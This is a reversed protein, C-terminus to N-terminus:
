EGSLSFIYQSQFYMQVLKCRAYALLTAIHPVYLSYPTRFSCCLIGVNWQLCIDVLAYFVNTNRM